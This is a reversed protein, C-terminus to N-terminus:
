DSERGAICCWSLSAPLSAMVPLMYRLYANVPSLLCGLVVLLSPLLVVLERRKKKMLLFACESLLIYVHMGPSLWLSLVPMKETLRVTHELIRRLSENDIAFKIDLYGDQWHEMNGIRFYAIYGDYNHVNPYFYGYTQNIFSQIYTDPHKRLQGAWVTFYEKLYAADPRSLFYRKIDDSIMPNYELQELPITFGRQLVEEEEATIEDYHEQIYRATQQLPISLMERIEGKPIQHLSMYLNQVGVLVVCLLIGSLFLKWYRRYLLIVFPLWLLVVFRGENRSVTIGAVSGLFLAVHKWCIKERNGDLLDILVSMLLLVSIYQISDKVMTYGWIQFFPYVGWLILGGWSVLVPVRHKSMVHSAYAFVLSQYLFQPGTYFFLGISDSHFLLRGLKICGGMWETMLIPSIGSKDIVGLAQWLQAHADWQLTGPFYAILWPLAFAFIVALPGLFTHEEFLFREVRNSPMRCFWKQKKEIVYGVLLMGNKYLLYYGVTVFVALVFQMKSLFIGDWSNMKEYSIGVVTGVAFVASLGSIWPSKQRERVLYFVIGLEIAMFVTEIGWSDMSSFATFFYKAGPVEMVYGQQLISLADCSLVWLAILFQTGTRVNKAAKLKM